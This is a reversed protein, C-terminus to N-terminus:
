ARKVDEKAIRVEEQLSEIALNEFELERHVLQM